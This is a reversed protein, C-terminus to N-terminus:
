KQACNDFHWRGMASRGGSKDCHPCVVIERCRLVAASRMGAMKEVDVPREKALESLKARHEASLPKRRKFAHKITGKWTRGTNPGPRSRNAQAKNETSLQIFVNGVEYPGVDGVRSMCYQGRKPGRESLKGSQVWVDLWQEFTLLFQIPAGNLDKRTNATKRQSGYAQKLKKLEEETFTM